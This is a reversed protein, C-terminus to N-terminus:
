KTMTEAILKDVSSEWAVCVLFTLLNIVWSAHKCRIVVEGNVDLLLKVAGIYLGGVRHISYGVLNLFFM